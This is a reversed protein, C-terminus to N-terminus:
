DGAAMALPAGRHRILRAANAVVLMSSAAMGIGAVLPTVLGFAALPIAVANYVFAWALNQRIVRLASQATAIAAALAGLGAKPLLVDARSLAIDAGEGMAISVNAAALAAADNVGDGTMAVVAGERQLARIYELKADPTAAAHQAVIGLADRVSQVIEARDGSVLHVRKGARQLRDILPRADARVADRLMFLGIWGERSGLTIVTENAAAGAVEDPLPLEHLEQVFRPTGIRLRVNEITGEIGCGAVNRLEYARALPLGAAATAIARAIPHASATELARAWALCQERTTVRAGSQLPMVTVLAMVGTTLTGTKDFVYDTAWALNELANGHAVLVGYRHLASMGSALVTPTALSLACPCSVVLVAVAVAIARSPDIMSWAAFSAGALLLLALVFHRAVRDAALTLRPKETAARELLRQISARVTDAGVRTIRMVFAHDVNVSGGTVEDGPAKTVPRAEGTLLSEDIDGTGDVIVGDAPVADGPRVRVFDGRKLSAAAVVCALDSAPWDALQEAVAPGPQALREQTLACRSRATLELYRAALLLFVFMTISDFYVPGSGRLTAVASATFAVAIGLAVPVDMGLLRTRLNRWAGAFFPAASYLVVPATLILGAIHMLQEVDPTMEGNALYAPILYMMVQMMGFGAVFLRWLAASREAIRSSEARTRDYPVARYGLAAVAAMLDRLRMKEADWRALMRHTAYNIDVGLVGPLRALRQEILWLCAACTVGELMLAAVHVDAGDERIFGREVDPNGYADLEHLARPLLENAESAPLASRQIYYATLGHDVITQAVAQCGACCLDRERGAIVVRYRRAPNLPLGCHYCAPTVPASASVPNPEM